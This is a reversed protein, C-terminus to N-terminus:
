FDTDAAPASQTASTAAPATARKPSPRAAAQAPGTTGQAQQLQNIRDLEAQARDKHSDVKLLETLRVRAQGIDGV